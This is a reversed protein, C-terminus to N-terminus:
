SAPEMGMSKYVAKAAASALYDLLAKAAAPNKAHSSIVGVMPTPPSVAAPLPGVIDVGPDNIESQYALAFDVDGKVVLAMGGGTKVKPLIQDTIGLRNLTDDVSVGSVAGPTGHPYSIAKAALLTKKLAEPTSIDPKPAGKKVALAVPLSALPRVSSEVVSGSAIADAIPMLLIPVDFPEGDMVKKKMLGSAGYTGKIKYGTKAEFAPALQKISGRIGGPGILTVEMAADGSSSQRPQRPATRAVGGALLLVIGLFNVGLFTQRKVTLRRFGDGLMPGAGSQRRDYVELVFDLIM